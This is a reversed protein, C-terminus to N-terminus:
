VKDFKYKNIYTPETTTQYWDLTLNSFGIDTIFKYYPTIWTNKIYVWLEAKIGESTSNKTIYLYPIFYNSDQVTRQKLYITSLTNDSSSRICIYLDGVYYFNESDLLEIHHYTRMYVGKLSITCLKNYIGTNINQSSPSSYGKIYSNLNWGNGIDIGSADIYIDNKLKISKSM